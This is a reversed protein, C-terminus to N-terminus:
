NDMLDTMKAVKRSHHKVSEVEDVTLLDEHGGAAISMLQECSDLYDQVEKRFVPPLSM